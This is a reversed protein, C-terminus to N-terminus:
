TADVMERVAAETGIPRLPLDDVLERQRDLITLGDIEVILRLLGGLRGRPHDVRVLQDRVFARHIQQGKGRLVVLNALVLDVADIAHLDARGTERLGRLLFDCAM